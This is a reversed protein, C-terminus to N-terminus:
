RGSEALSKYAKENIKTISEFKQISIGNSEVALKAKVLVYTAGKNPYATFNGNKDIVPKGGSLKMSELKAVLAKDGNAKYTLQQNTDDYTAGALKYGAQKLQTKNYSATATHMFSISEGMQYDKQIRLYDTLQKKNEGKHEALLSAATQDITEGMAASRDSIGGAQYVPAAFTVTKGNYEKMFNANNKNYMVALYDWTHANESAVTEWKKNPVSGLYKHRVIDDREKDSLVWLKKVKYTTGNDKVTSEDIEMKIPSYKKLTTPLKSAIVNINTSEYPNSLRNLTITSTKSGQAGPTIAGVTAYLTYHANHTGNSDAVGGLTKADLLYDSTQETKYSVPEAKKPAAKKECGTLLLASASAFVILSKKM